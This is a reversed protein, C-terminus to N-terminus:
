IGGIKRIHDMGLQIFANAVHFFGKDYNERALQLMNEAQNFHFETHGNRARSVKARNQFIIRGLKEIASKLSQQSIQQASGNSMYDVLNTFDQKMDTIGSANEM